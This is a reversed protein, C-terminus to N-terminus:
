ARDFWIIMLFVSGAIILPLFLVITITTIKHFIKIFGTSSHHSSTDGAGQKITENVEQQKILDGVTIDKLHNEGMMNGMSQGMMGSGSSNEDYNGWSIFIALLVVIFFVISLIIFPLKKKAM